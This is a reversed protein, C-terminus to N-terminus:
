VPRAFNSTTPSQDGMGVLATLIPAEVVELQEPLM